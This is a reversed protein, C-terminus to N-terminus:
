IGWEEWKNEVIRKLREMREDDPKCKECGEGECVLCNEEEQEVLWLLAFLWGFLVECLVLKRLNLVVFM